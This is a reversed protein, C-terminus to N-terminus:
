PKYAFEYQIVANKINFANFDLTDQFLKEVSFPLVAIDSCCKLNRYTREKGVSCASIATAYTRMQRLNSILLTTNMLQGLVTKFKATEHFKM